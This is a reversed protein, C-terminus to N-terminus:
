SLNRVASIGAERLANDIMTNYSRILEFHRDQIEKIKKIHEPEKANKGSLPARQRLQKVQQAYVQARQYAQFQKSRQPPKNLPGTIKIIREIDVFLEHGTLTRNCIRFLVEALHYSRTEDNVGPTRAVISVARLAQSKRRAHPEIQPDDETTYFRQITEHVDPFYGVECLRRRLMDYIKFATPRTTDVKGVPNDRIAEDASLGHAFCRILARFEKNPLKQQTLYRNKGM